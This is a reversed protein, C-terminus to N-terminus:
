QMAAHLHALLPERLEVLAVACACAGVAEDSGAEDGGGGDGGAEGGDGVTSGDGGSSSSSHEPSDGAKNDTHTASTTTSTGPLGHSLARAYLAAYRARMALVSQVVWADLRSLEGCTGAHLGPM